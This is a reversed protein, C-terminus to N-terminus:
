PAIRHAPDSWPGPGASGVAAVRFWYRTGSVLGTAIHKAKSTIVLQLWAMPSGSGAAFEIVYSRGGRVPKWKLALTSALDGNRVALHGPATPTGVPAGASRVGFGSSEIKAKDGASASDVYNAQQTIALELADERQKQAATLAKAAERATQAAAYAAELASAAATMVKLDPSPSPFNPNNAMETVIQRAFAIKQLATMSKIGVRVKSMILNGALSESVRRLPREFHEAVCDLPDSGHVTPL